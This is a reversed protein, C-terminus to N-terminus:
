VDVSDLKQNCKDKFDEYEVHSLGSYARKDIMTGLKRWDDGDGPRYELIDGIHGGSSDYGGTVTYIYFCLTLSIKHNKLYKTFNNNM